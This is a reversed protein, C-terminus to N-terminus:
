YELISLLPRSPLLEKLLSEKLLFEIQELTKRLKPSLNLGFTSPDLVSDLFQNVGLSQGSETFISLERLMIKYANERNIPKEFPAPGLLAMIEEDEMPSIFDKLFVA